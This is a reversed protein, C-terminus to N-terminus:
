KEGSPHGQGAGRGGARLPQKHLRRTPDAAVFAAPFFKYGTFISEMLGSREELGILVASYVHHIMFALFAFMILFHTERVYQIGFLSILWGGLIRTIGGSVGLVYNYLAFGTLIEVVMLAYVILYTFAALPNHGVGSEPDKRM